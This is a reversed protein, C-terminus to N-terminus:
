FHFLDKATQSTIRAIHVYPESRLQAIFEAITKIQAPTNQKGRITQPPLFPADTELLITELPINIVISRLDNNKPYTISGGFGLFLGLDIYKKAYDMNSSFCHIVGKFSTYNKYHALVEYTEQDADRSHVIIALNHEIALEIQAYFSKKQYELNYGQHYKDIGCEGIGVIKNEEKNQALQKLEHITSKWEYNTDTPHLGISAYCNDLQKAIEICTRSEILDTGINIIKIVEQSQAEQIIKKCKDIEELSLHNFKEKSSYNRIMLNMHCHTDILM